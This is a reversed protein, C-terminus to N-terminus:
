GQRTNTRAIIKALESENVLKFSRMHSINQNPDTVGNLFAVTWYLHPPVNKTRLLRYFDTKFANRVNPENLPIDTATRLLLERQSRVLTRYRETYFIVKDASSTENPIPM